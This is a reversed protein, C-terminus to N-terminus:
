ATALLNCLTSPSQSSIDLLNDALAMVGPAAGREASMDGWCCWRLRKNLPEPQSLEILRPLPLKSNDCLQMAPDIHVGRREEEAVRSGVPVCFKEDAPASVDKLEEKGSKDGTGGFVSGLLPSLPEQLVGGRLQSADACATFEEPWRSRPWDPLELLAFLKLM